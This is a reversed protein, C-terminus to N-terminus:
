RAAEDLPRRGNRHHAAAEALRIRRIRQRVVVAYRVIVYAISGVVAGMLVGGVLMPKLTPWILHFSQTLTAFSLDLKLPSTAGQSGLVLEGIQFSTLWIFPFTLPNGVATGFAAALMSGGIPWAFAFSLLFHFGVFPTCSAFAGAAFGAAIAHPSAELRLVRHKYYAFSRGWSRRPWLAVRMREKASPPARRSFLM